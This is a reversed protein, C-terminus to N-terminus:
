VCPRSTKSEETPLHASVPPHKDECVGLLALHKVALTFSLYACVHGRHEVNNGNEMQEASGFDDRKHM